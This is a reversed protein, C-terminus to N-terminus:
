KMTSDFYDYYTKTVIRTKFARGFNLTYTRVEIREAKTPETSLVAQQKTAASRSSPELVDPRSEGLPVSQGGSVHSVNTPLDFQEFHNRRGHLGPRTLLNNGNVQSKFYNESDDKFMQRLTVGYQSLDLLPEIQDSNATFMEPWKISRQVLVNHNVTITDSITIRAVTGNTTLELTALKTRIEDHVMSTRVLPPTGEAVHVVRLGNLHRFVHHDTTVSPELVTRSINQTETQSTGETDVQIVNTRVHESSSTTSKLVEDPRTPTLENHSHEPLVSDSQVSSAHLSRSSPGYPQSTLTFVSSPDAAQGHSNRTTETALSSAVPLTTNQSSADLTRPEILTVVSDAMVATPEIIVPVADTNVTAIMKDTMSVSSSGQEVRTGNISVSSLTWFLACVRLCNSLKRKM